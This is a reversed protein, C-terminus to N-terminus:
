YDDQMKGFFQLVGETAIAFTSLADQLFHAQTLMQIQLRNPFKRADKKLTGKMVRSAIAFLYMIKLKVILIKDV